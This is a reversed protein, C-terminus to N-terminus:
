EMDQCDGIALITASDVSKWMQFVFDDLFIERSFFRRTWRIVVHIMLETDSLNVLDHSELELTALWNQLKPSNLVASFETWTLVGSPNPLQTPTTKDLYGFRTNIINLIISLNSLSSTSFCSGFYQLFSVQIGDGYQTFTKIPWFWSAETLHKTHLARSFFLNSRIGDFKSPSFLYSVLIMPWQLKRIGPWPERAM